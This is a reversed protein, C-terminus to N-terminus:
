QQLSSFPSFQEISYLALSSVARGLQDKSSGPLHSLVTFSLIVYYCLCNYM